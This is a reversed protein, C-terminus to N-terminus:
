QGPRPTRCFYGQYLGDPCASCVPVPAIGPINEVATAGAFLRGSATHKKIHDLPNRRNFGLLLVGLPHINVQIPLEGEAQGAEQSGPELNPLLQAILFNGAQFGPVLKFDRILFSQM